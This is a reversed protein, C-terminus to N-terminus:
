RSATDDQIEALGRRAMICGIHVVVSIPTTLALDLLRRAQQQVAEDGGVWLPLLVRTFLPQGSVPLALQVEITDAKIEPEIAGCRSLTDVWAEPTLLDPPQTMLPAFAPDAHHAQLAGSMAACLEAFTAVLPATILLQGGPRLVRLAQRLVARLPKLQALPLTAWCLDFVGGAFPLRDSREKRPFVRRRLDPSLQDHFRRLEARDTSLAIVRSGPPLRALLALPAGGAGCALDLATQPGSGPRLQREILHTFHHHYLDVPDDALSQMAPTRVVRMTTERIPGSGSASGDSM